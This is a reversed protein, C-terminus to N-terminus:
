GITLFDIVERAANLVLRGFDLQKNKTLEGPVPPFVLGFLPAHSEMNLCKTVESMKVLNTNVYGNSQECSGAQMLAFRHRQIFM